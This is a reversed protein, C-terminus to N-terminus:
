DLVAYQLMVYAVASLAALTFALLLLRVWM